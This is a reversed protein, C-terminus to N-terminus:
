GHSMAESGGSHLALKANVSLCYCTTDYDVNIQKSIIVALFSICIQTTM